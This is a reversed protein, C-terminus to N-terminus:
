RRPATTTLKASTVLFLTCVLRVCRQPRVHPPAPCQQREVCSDEHKGNRQYPALAPCVGSAAPNPHLHLKPSPPPTSAACPMTDPWPLVDRVPVYLPHPARCHVLVVQLVHVSLLYLASRPAVTQVFPTPSSSSTPRVMNKSQCRSLPAATNKGRTPHPCTSGVGCARHGHHRAGGGLPGGSVCDAHQLLGLAVVEPEGTCGQGSPERWPGSQSPSGQQMQSGGTGPITVRVPRGHYGQCQM